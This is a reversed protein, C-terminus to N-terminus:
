SLRAFWALTEIIGPDKSKEKIQLSLLFCEVAEPFRGQRTLIAGRFGLISAILIPANIEKAIAQSELFHQDAEDYLEQYGLALGIDRLVNGLSTFDELSRMLSASDKAKEVIEAMRGALVWGWISEGSLRIKIIPSEPLNHALKALHDQVDFLSKWDGMRVYRRKMIAYIYSLGYEDQTQEFFRRAKEHLAFREQEKGQYALIRGLRLLSYVLHSDVPVLNLINELVSNAKDVGGELALREYSSLMQGWDCLAYARLKPEANSNYGINQYKKEAIANNATLHLLRANYYDVWLKSNEDELPYTNVDNLLARLHNVFRYRTLSEAMEQFLQMGTEEEFRVRHYLVELSLREADEGSVKELRKEFYVAARDHFECYRESDHLRLNADMMERVSDHLALGEARSRVFPFRRLENYVDRVDEMQLVARLIPQDFWRVVAAAELAPILTNPVGEMLRDVLNAVIESKVSQFDEVGYKVWLQVAGTVVMPLGRAFQIIADAQREDPEGGHITAYYRYILHRMIEETMPKLEEIHANMMWGLWIRDWEPLKRGAIVMLVNKHISQAVEGVWGELASIQEYTDLLLIIRKKEAAKAVDALFDTTLRKTPDLLLEIDPKTLFGRLWDVLAETAIGSIGGGIAGGVTTGIGPIVSGILAGLFAGGATEATKSAAKGAIDVVRNGASQSKLVQENVKALIARYTNITKGLSTFKVGDVKLDEMWSTIVDLVSKEDDGSALGVPVKERKCHIRFMLLLSSKGSGGVGHIVFLHKTLTTSAVYKKFIDLLYEMDTFYNQLNNNFDSPM